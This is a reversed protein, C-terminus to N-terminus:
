CKNNGSGRKKCKSGGKSSTSKCGDFIGNGVYEVNSIDVPVLSSCGSFAYDGITTVSSPITITTLSSCGSFANSGISKLQSATPITISTLSTCGYFAFDDISTVSSPITITELSSCEYFAEPGISTVGIPISISTLSTCGSFAYDSIRTVGAPINITKLSECNYFAYDGISTVGIPITITELSSCKGFATFGITIVSKPITITKLSNCDFFAYQGISTVSDPINYIENNKGFPYILLETKNKNFLVGDLSCFYKNAEDVSITTLSICDKFAADGISTVSSPITITVLSTCAEFAADGISTLQSAAPINISTIGRCESFAFDGISTLQSAAPITISTIGTCSAFAHSGISTVTSPIKYNTGIKGPPYVLLETQDKNFLVGDVSSFHNSAEDVLITTLKKCSYFAYDGIRTVSDPIKYSTGIKGCPYLLLSTKDKNFLVGDVSSFHKNAEDVLITTLSSCVRFIGEQIKTVSSSITITTLFSEYFKKKGEISTVNDEVIMHFPEQPFEFKTQTGDYTFEVLKKDGDLRRKGRVIRKKDSVKNTLAIYGVVGLALGSIFAAGNKM